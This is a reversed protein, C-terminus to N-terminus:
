FKKVSTHQQVIFHKLQEQPFVYALVGDRRQDFFLASSYFSWLRYVLSQYSM